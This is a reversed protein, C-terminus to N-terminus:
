KDISRLYIKTRNDDIEIQQSKYFKCLQESVDRDNLELKKLKREELYLQESVSNYKRKLEALETEEQESFRHM